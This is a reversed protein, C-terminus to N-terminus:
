EFYAGKADIVRELRGRFRACARQVEEKPLSAFVAKIRDILEQKTNCASRNTQREVAGWLYYDCPNCDPSNPPWVDPSAYDRFNSSIWQLSKRSTHCPASDQQWVYPRGASVSDIWPKVVTELLEIYGTTDLRLGQQFIHPPMVDGESSIVGFVMVTQPFKTQAVVPVESPNMACWRNNQSNHKQDQCFNKEDSFFWISNAEVPHKLKNLLRRSKLLRNDQAKQTLIQGKRRKYFKYRLDETVALQITTRGVGMEEALKTKSKTPDEEILTQLRALFEPTRFNDSRRSTPRRRVVEEYSNNTELLDNRITKVTNRSMHAGKMVEADGFGARIMMCATIRKWEESPCFEDM